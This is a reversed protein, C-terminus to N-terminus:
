AGTRARSRPASPTRCARVSRAAPSGLARTRRARRAAFGFWPAGSTAAEDVVIADEPQLAPSRAASCDRAHAQRHRARVRARPALEGDNPGPASRTPWRRSRARRTRTRGPWCRFTVAGRARAPEAHEPLRLVGRARDRGRARPRRVKSLLEVGQEPFYPFKAFAPLGAGREVRAPFTGFLVRAGTKAAVRAAALSGRRRSRTRRRAPDAGARRLAARKRRRTSRRRRSGRRAARDRRAEGPGAGDGWACDAPVILTAVGGPARALRRSRRPWDGPRARGGDEGQAGLM